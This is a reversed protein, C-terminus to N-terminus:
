RAVSPVIRYDAQFVLNHLDAAAIARLIPLEAEADAASFVNLPWTGATAGRLHPHHFSIGYDARIEIPPVGAARQAPWSLTWSAVLGGDPLRRPGTGAIEGAGTLLDDNVEALVQRSLPALLEVAESFLAEKDERTVSGGHTGDRLDVFHRRLSTVYAPSATESM